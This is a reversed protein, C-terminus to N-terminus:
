ANATKNVWENAREKAANVVDKVEDSSNKVEKGAKRQLESLKGKFHEKAEEAQEHFRKSDRRKKAIILGATALAAVGAAIGIIVKKNSM